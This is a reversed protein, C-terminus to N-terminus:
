PQSCIDAPLAGIKPALPAADLIDPLAGGRMSAHVFVDELSVATDTDNVVTVRLAGSQMAAAPLDFRLMRPRYSGGSEACYKM